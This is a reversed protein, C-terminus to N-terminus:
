QAVKLEEMCLALSEQWTPMVLGFDRKLKSQDLLSNKPRNADTPYQDTTIPEVVCKSEILSFIEKTFGCWSTAGSGAIHYLGSIDDKLAQSLMVKTAKALERCWTPAGLQDDVVQV